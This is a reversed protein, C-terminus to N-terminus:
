RSTYRLPTLSKTKLKSYTLCDKMTYFNIVVEVAESKCKELESICNQQSRMLNREFHNRLITQQEKDLNAADLLNEKKKKVM